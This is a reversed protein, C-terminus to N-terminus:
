DLNPMVAWRILWTADAQRELALIGGNQMRFLTRDPDDVLLQGALRELFPLHGVVMLGDELGVDVFAAVDDKPALGDRAVVGEVPNLQAALLEATQRARLKGSHVVRKVPLGFHAAIGAVSEVERRGDDSLPRAPDEAPDVALGHQVLYLRV